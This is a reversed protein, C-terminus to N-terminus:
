EPQSLYGYILQAKGGAYLQTDELQVQGTGAAVTSVDADFAFVGQGTIFRAWTAIGSSLCLPQASSVLTAVRNSITACPKDLAIEVLLNTAAGGSAPRTGDYIRIRAPDTGADLFDVRGQLAANCSEISETIGSPM